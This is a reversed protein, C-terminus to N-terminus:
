RMPEVAIHGDGREVVVFRNMGPKLVKDVRQEKGAKADELIHFLEKAGQYVRVVANTGRPFEGTIPDTAGTRGPPVIALDYTPRRDEPMTALQEPSYWGEEPPPGDKTLWLTVPQTTQNKVEVQYSPVCGVTSLLLFLSFVISKM